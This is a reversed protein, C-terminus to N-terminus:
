RALDKGSWGKGAAPSDPKLRFDMTDPNMFQPDGVKAGQAYGLDNASKLGSPNRLDHVSGDIVYGGTTLSLLITKGPKQAYFNDRVVNGSSDKGTFVVMDILSASENWIPGGMVNNVVRNGVLTNGWDPQPRPMGHLVINYRNGYCTNNEVIADNSGAIYIGQTDNEIVGNNRILIGYTDGEEKISIENMIGAGFNHAVFNDEVRNNGLDGDFWIGTALNDTVHCRRVTVSRVGPILKMGGAMWSRDFRRYNNHTINLDELVVNQPPTGAYKHVGSDPKFSDYPKWNGSVAVGVLGNYSMDCRRVVSDRFVIALGGGDGYKMACDEITWDVGLVVTVLGTLKEAASGNSHMFGLNRVVGHSIGNALLLQGPVISAEMVHGNPDSRDPLMCYLTKTNQDYFFSGPYLDGLDKGVILLQTKGTSQMHAHWINQEGIQQLSQGDVFLQQSNITWGSVKWVNPQTEQWNEVLKSGKLITKGAGAGEIILPQGPSGGHTVNVTKDLRYIGAALRVTDGPGAKDMAEQLANSDAGAPVDIIRGFAPSILAFTFFVVLLCRM